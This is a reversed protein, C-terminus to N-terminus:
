ECFKWVLFNPLIVTNYATDYRLRYKVRAVYFMKQSCIFGLHLFPSAKWVFKCFKQLPMRKYKLFYMAYNIFELLTMRHYNKQAFSIALASSFEIKVYDFPKRVYSFPYLLFKNTYKSLVQKYVKNSYKSVRVLLRNNVGVINKQLQIQM